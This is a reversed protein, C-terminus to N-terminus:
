KDKRANIFKVTTEEPMIPKDDSTIDLKDGYKKPNMKSLAWKRADIRLRSRQIHDTNVKQVEIGDGIDVSKYDNTGNDAIDFMEEFIVDARISTARVYQDFLKDKDKIWKYFTQRSPMNEDKLVSRLSEGETIRECIVNFYDEIQKQSYAM